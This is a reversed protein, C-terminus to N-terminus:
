GKEQFLKQTILSLPCAQSFGSIHKFVLWPWYGEDGKIWEKEGAEVHYNGLLM